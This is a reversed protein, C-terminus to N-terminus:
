DDCNTITVRAKDTIEIQRAELVEFIDETISAVAGKNYWDQGWDSRPMTMTMLEELIKQGAMSLLSKGFDYYLGATDPDSKTLGVLFADLVERNHQGDRHAMVSLLALEPSREATAIDVVPIQEPGVVLPRMTFLHPDAIVIPEACWTATTVDECVVLLVVPCKLRSHLTSLYAPWSFRKRGDSKCQVEVIVALTRNEGVLLEVVHDARYETPAIYNLEAATSVARDFEPVPFGLSTLLDVTLTPRKQFVSTYMEHDLTLPM